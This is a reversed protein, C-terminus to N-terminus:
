LDTFRETADSLQNTVKTNQDMAMNIEKIGDVIENSNSASMNIAQSSEQISSNITQVADLMEEM